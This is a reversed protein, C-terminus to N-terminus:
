CAEIRTYGMYQVPIQNRLDTLRYAPKTSALHLYEAVHRVINADTQWQRGHGGNVEYWNDCLQFYMLRPLIIALELGFM